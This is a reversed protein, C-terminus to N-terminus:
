KENVINSIQQAPIGIDYAMCHYTLQQIVRAAKNILIGREHEGFQNQLMAYENLKEIFKDAVLSDKIVLNMNAELVNNIRDSKGPFPLINTNNDEEVRTISLKCQVLMESEAFTWGEDELDSVYNEELFLEIQEKEEEPMDFEIEEWCGDDTSWDNCEYGCNFINVGEDIAPPTDDETEIYFEGWRWGLEHTIKNGNKIWYQREVISKKETPEVKWLVM